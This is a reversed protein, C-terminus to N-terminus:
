NNKDITKFSTRRGKFIAQKKPGLGFQQLLIKTMFAAMGSFIIGECCGALTLFIFKLNKFLRRFAMPLDSLKEFKITNERPYTTDKRDM